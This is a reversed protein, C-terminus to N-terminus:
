ALYKCMRCSLSNNKEEKEETKSQHVFLKSDAILYVTDISFSCKWDIGAAKKKEAYREIELSFISLNSACCLPRQKKESRLEKAAVVAQKTAAVVNNSQFYDLWNDIISTCRNPWVKKEGEKWHFFFAHAIKFQAHKEVARKETCHTPLANNNFHSM